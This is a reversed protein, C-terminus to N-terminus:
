SDDKSGEDDDDDNDDDFQLQTMDDVIPVVADNDNM